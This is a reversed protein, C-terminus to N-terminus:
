PKHRMVSGGLMAAKRPDYGAAGGIGTATAATRPKFAPAAPIFHKAAKPQQALNARQALDPRKSAIPSMTVSSSKALRARTPGPKGAARAARAASTPSAASQSASRDATKSSLAIGAWVVPPAISLGGLGLLVGVLALRM